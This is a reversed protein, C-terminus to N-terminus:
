SNGLFNYLHFFFGLVYANDSRPSRLDEICLSSAGDDMLQWGSSVENAQSPKCLGMNFDM